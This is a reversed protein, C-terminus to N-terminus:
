SSIRIEGMGCKLTFTANAQNHITEERSLASYTDDGIEITGMGCSVAYNYTDINGELEFDITGMGCNMQSDKSVSANMEITGVGCNLDMKGFKGKSVDICGAGVSSRFDDAYLEDATIEGADANLEMVQANLETEIELVGADVQISIDAFPHQKPVNLYLSIDKRSSRGKREDRIVLRGQEQTVSVDERSGSISVYINQDASETVQLYGHHLSVELEQIEDAHATLINAGDTEVNGKDAQEKENRDNGNDWDPMQRTHVTDAIYHVVNKAWSVTGDEQWDMSGKGLVIGLILAAAGVGICGATIYLIVKVFRKM